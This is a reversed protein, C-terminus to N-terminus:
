LYNIADRHAPWSKVLPVDEATYDYKLPEEHLTLFASTQRKLEKQEHESKHAALKELFDTMDWKQIYGIEDGTYLVKDHEDFDIAKIAYAVKKASGLQEAENIELRRLLCTNRLPHPLIAYFNLYGESDATVICDTGKLFRCVKVEPYPAVKPTM